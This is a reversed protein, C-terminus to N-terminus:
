HVLDLNYKNNNICARSCTYTDASKTRYIIFYIHQQYFFFDHPRNCWKKLIFTYFPSTNVRALNSTFLICFCVILLKCLKYEYLFTFILPLLLYIWIYVEFPLSFHLIVIYIPLCWHALWCCCIICQIVDTSTQKYTITKFYLNM